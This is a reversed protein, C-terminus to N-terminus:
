KIAPNQWKCNKAYELLLAFLELSTEITIIHVDFMPDLPPPPDFKGGGWRKRTKLNGM